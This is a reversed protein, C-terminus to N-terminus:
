MTRRLRTDWRRKDRHVPHEDSETQEGNIRRQKLLRPRQRAVIELVVNLDGASDVGLQILDDCAIDGIELM